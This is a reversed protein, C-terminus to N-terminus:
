KQEEEEEIGFDKANEISTKRPHKYDFANVWQESEIKLEEGNTLVIHLTNYKVGWFKVQEKNELDLHNPIRFIDDVAYTVYVVKSM